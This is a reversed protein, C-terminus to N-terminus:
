GIFKLYVLNKLWWQTPYFWAVVFTARQRQQRRAAEASATATRQGCSQGGVDFMNSALMSSKPLVHRGMVFVVSIGVSPEFVCVCWGDRECLNSVPRPEHGWYCFYYYYYYYLM